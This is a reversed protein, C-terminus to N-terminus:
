SIQATEHQATGARHRARRETILFVVLLVVGVLIVVINGLQAFSSLTGAAPYTGQMFISPDTSAHLLIPAIITRTVRLALYMCFGFFFTYLMQLLTPLLPQGIFLNTAHLLAFLAASVMGVAVESRGSSRMIRVVYGRTLLEESFGIVLGALLWAAVWDFGAASYDISAFRMVNFLLVVAIAIWMWGGGRPTRREFTRRLWGVSAGFGVLILSGILVPVTILVIVYSASDADGIFPVFPAMLLSAPEYIALYGVALILAKWWRGHDWFRAWGSPEVTSNM